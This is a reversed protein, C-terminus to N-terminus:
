RDCRYAAPEKCVKAHWTGQGDQVSPQDTLHWFINRSYPPVGAAASKPDQTQSVSIDSVDTWDIHPNTEYGKGDPYRGGASLYVKRKLYDLVNDKLCKTQQNLLVAYNDLSIDCKGGSDKDCWVPWAGYTGVGVPGEDKIDLPPQSAIENTLCFNVDRQGPLWYQLGNERRIREADPLSSILHDDDPLCDNSGPSHCNADTLDKLTYSSSGRPEKCYPGDDSPPDKKFEPISPSSMPECGDGECVVAM